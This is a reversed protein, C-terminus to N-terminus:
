GKESARSGPYHKAPGTNCCRGLPTDPTGRLPYRGPDRITASSAASTSGRGTRKPVVSAFATKAPQIFHCHRGERCVALGESSPSRARGRALRLHCATKQRYGGPDGSSGTTPPDSSSAEQSRIEYHMQCHTNALALSFHM